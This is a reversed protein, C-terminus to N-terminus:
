SIQLTKKKKLHQKVYNKSTSVDLDGKVCSRSGLRQFIQKNKKLRYKIDVSITHFILSPSDPVAVEVKMVGSSQLTKKTKKLHQKVKVSITSVTLSPSGLVDVVVKVCSRM